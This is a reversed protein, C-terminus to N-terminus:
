VAKAGEGAEFSREAEYELLMGALFQAADHWRDSSL